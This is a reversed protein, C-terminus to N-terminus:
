NYPSLSNLLYRNIFLLHSIFFEVVGQRRLSIYEAQSYDVVLMRGSLAFSPLPTNVTPTFVAQFALVLWGLAVGQSNDSVFM